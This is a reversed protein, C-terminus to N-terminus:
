KPLFTTSALMAAGPATTCHNVFVYPGCSAAVTIKPSTCCLFFIGDAAGNSRDVITSSKAIATCRDDDVAYTQSNYTKGIASEDFRAAM